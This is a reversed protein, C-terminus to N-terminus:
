EIINWPCMQELGHLEVLHSLSPASAEKEKIKEWCAPGFGRSVNTAGKLERGCKGCLTGFYVEVDKRMDTHFHVSYLLYELAINATVYREDYSKVTHVPRLEWPRNPLISWLHVWGDYADLVFVCLDGKTFKSKKIHFSILHRSITNHMVFKANGGLIFRKINAMGYQRKM